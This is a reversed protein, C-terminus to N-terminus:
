FFSNGYISVWETKEILQQSLTRNQLETEVKSKILYYIMTSLVIIAFIAIINKFEFSGNLFETIAKWVTEGCYVYIMNSTLFGIASASYSIITSTNSLSMLVNLAGFPILPHNRLLVILLFNGKDGYLAMDIMKLTPRERIKALEEHPFNKGLIDTIMMLFLQGITGILIGAWLGFMSISLVLILISPCFLAATMLFSILIKQIKM